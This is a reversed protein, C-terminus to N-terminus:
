IAQQIGLELRVDESVNKSLNKVGTKFLTFSTAESFPIWSRNHHLEQLLVAIHDNKLDKTKLETEIQKDTLLVLKIKEQMTLAKFAGEIATIKDYPDSTYWHARKLIGKNIENIFKNIANLSQIEHEPLELSKESQSDDIQKQIRAIDEDKLSSAIKGLAFSLKTKKHQLEIAEHGLQIQEVEAKPHDDVATAKGSGIEVKRSQQALELQQRLSIIEQHMEELEQSHDEVVISEKPARALELQSLLDKNQLQAKRLQDELAEVTSSKEQTQKALRLQNELASIQLQLKEIQQSQQEAEQVRLEMAHFREELTQMKKRTSELESSQNQITQQTEESLKGIDQKAREKTEQLQRELASVQKKSSELALRIESLQATQQEVTLQKARVQEGVDSTEKQAAVLKVNLVDYRKQWVDAYETFLQTLPMARIADAKEANSQILTERFDHVYSSIVPLAAEPDEGAFGLVTLIQQFLQKSKETEAAFEARMQYRTNEIGFSGQCWMLTEHLGGKIIEADDKQKSAHKLAIMSNMSTQFAKLMTTWQLDIGSLKAQGGRKKAQAKIAAEESDLIRFPTRMFDVINLMSDLMDDVNGKYKGKFMSAKEEETIGQFILANLVKKHKEHASGEFSDLWMKATVGQPVAPVLPEVFDYIAQLEQKSLEVINHDDAGILSSRFYAGLLASGDVEPKNHERIAIKNDGKITFKDFINATVKQYLATVDIKDVKYRAEQGDGTRETTSEKLLSFGNILIESIANPRGHTWQEIEDKRLTNKPM